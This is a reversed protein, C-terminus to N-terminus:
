PTPLLSKGEWADLPAVGLIDTVTPAIDLISSGPMEVNKDFGNGLLFIPITMDEALETGHGTEHGGHDSTIIVVYEDGLSDMIDFVLELSSNLAEYYEESLWGHEHGMEDLLGLYLFTFDTSNNFIHKKCAQATMNNSIKWGVIENPSYSSKVLASDSIVDGLEYWNYFFACKKGSKALTEAIGDTLNDVPTYDNNLVGHVEPSVGHHMSMHCPLTVSPYVTSAASYYTSNQMLREAYKSERVADARMGDISVLLVKTHVGDTNDQQEESPSCSILHCLVVSILLMFAIIRKLIKM